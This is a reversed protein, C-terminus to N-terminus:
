IGLEGLQAARSVTEPVSRSEVCRWDLGECLAIAGQNGADVSLDLARAGRRQFAQCIHSLLMTALGQRRYAPAVVIDKVFGSTWAIGAAALTGVPTEIVFALGADFESNSALALWWANLAMLRDQEAHADEILAHVPQGDTAPRFQRILYPYITWAPIPHDLDCRYRHVLIDTM